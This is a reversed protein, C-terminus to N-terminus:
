FLLFKTLCMLTQNRISHAEGRYKDAFHYYERVKRYNKDNAFRKSFRKECIYRATAAQHM